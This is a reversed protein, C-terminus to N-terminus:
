FGDLQNPIFQLSPHVCLLRCTCCMQPFKPLLTPFFKGFLLQNGICFSHWSYTRSYFRCFTAVKILWFNVNYKTWCFSEMIKKKKKIQLQKNTRHKLKLTCQSMLSSLNWYFSSFHPHGLVKSRYLLYECKLLVIVWVVFSFGCQLPRILLFYSNKLPGTLTRVQVWSFM